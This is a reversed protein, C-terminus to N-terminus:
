PVGLAETVSPGDPLVRVIQPALDITTEMECFLQGLGLGLQHVVLDAHAATHSNLSVVIRGDDLLGAVATEELMSGIIRLVDQSARYRDAGPYAACIADILGSVSLTACTVPQHKATRRQEEVHSVVETTGSLVHRFGARRRAEQNRGLLAEAPERIASVILKIALSEVSLYPCDLVLVVAALDGNTCFAVVAIRRLM